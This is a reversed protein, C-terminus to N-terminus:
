GSFEKENRKDLTDTRLRRPLREFPFPFPILACSWTERAGLVGKGLVGKGKGKWRRGRLSGSMKYIVKIREVVPQVCNRSKWFFMFVHSDTLRM